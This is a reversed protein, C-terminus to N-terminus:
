KTGGLDLDQNRHMQIITLLAEMSATRELTREFDDKEEVEGFMDRSLDKYMSVTFDLAEELLSLEEDNLHLRKMEPM